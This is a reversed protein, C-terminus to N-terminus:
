ITGSRISQACVVAISKQSNVRASHGAATFTGIRTSRRFGQANFYEINVPYELEKEYNPTGGNGNVLAGIKGDFLYREDTALSIVPVPSPDDILYTATATVSPLLGDAFATVRFVTTSTFTLAEM